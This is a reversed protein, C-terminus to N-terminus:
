GRLAEKLRHEGSSAALLLCIAKASSEWNWWFGASAGDGVARWM